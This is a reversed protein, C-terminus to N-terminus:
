FDVNKSLIKPLHIGVHKSLLRSLRAFTKLSDKFDQFNQFGQFDQLTKYLRSFDQVTKFSFTEFIDQFHRSFFLLTSERDLVSNSKLRTILLDGIKKEHDYWVSTPFLFDILKKIHSTRSHVFLSIVNRYFWQLTSIKEM